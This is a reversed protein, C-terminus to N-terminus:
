RQRRKNGGKITKEYQERKQQHQRNWEKHAQRENRDIRPDARYKPRPPHKERQQHHKRYPENSEIRTHTRERRDLLIHPPLKKVRIWRTGSPYYYYGTSYHFYVRVSPYYYYDYYPPSYVHPHPGSYYPDYVCAGLAFVILIAPYRMLSTMPKQINM